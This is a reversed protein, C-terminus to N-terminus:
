EKWKLIHNLVSGAKIRERMLNLLYSQKGKLLSDKTCSGLVMQGM